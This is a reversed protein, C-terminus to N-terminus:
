EKLLSLNYLTDRSLRYRRKGVLWKVYSFQREVGCESIGACTIRIAFDAGIRFEETRINCRICDWFLFDDIETHCKMERGAGITHTFKV